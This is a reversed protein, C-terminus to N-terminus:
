CINGVSEFEGYSNISLKKKGVLKKGIQFNYIEGVNV